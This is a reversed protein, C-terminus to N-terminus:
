LQSNIGFVGLGLGLAAGSFFTLWQGSRVSTLEKEVKELRVNRDKEAQTNKSELRNQFDQYRTLAVDTVTTTIDVFKRDNLLDNVKRETASNVRQVGTDACSDLKTELTKWETTNYVHNRWLNPFQENIENRVKYRFNNSNLSEDIRNRLSLEFWPNYTVFDHESVFRIYM